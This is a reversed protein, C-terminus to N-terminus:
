ISQVFDKPLEVTFEIDEVWKYARNVSIDSVNVRIWKSNRYVWVLPSSAISEIIEAIEIDFKILNIKSM